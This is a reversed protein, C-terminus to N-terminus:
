VLTTTVENKTCFMCVLIGNNYYARESERAKLEKVYDRFMRERAKDDSFNKFRPDRKFKWKFEDWHSRYTVEEKL